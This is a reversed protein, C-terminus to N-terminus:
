LLNFFRIKASTSKAIRFKLAEAVLNPLQSIHTIASCTRTFEQIAGFAQMQQNLVLYEEVSEDTVAGSKHNQEDLHLNLRQNWNEILFNYSILDFEKIVKQAKLIAKQAQLYLGKNFLISVDDIASTLQHTGNKDFNFNRMAKLILDYLYKKLKSFTVGGKDNVGVVLADEDYDEMQEMLDFLKMYKNENGVTHLSAFLKFYRKESPTMTKVLEFLETSTKRAMIETKSLVLTPAISLWYRIFVPIFNPM